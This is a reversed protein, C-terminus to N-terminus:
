PYHSGPIPPPLPVPNGIHTIHRVLQTLLIAPHVGCGVCEGTPETVALAADRAVCPTMDSRARPCGVHEPADDYRGYGLVGRM